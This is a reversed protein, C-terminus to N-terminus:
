RIRRPDRMALTSCLLGYAAGTVTLAALAFWFPFPALRAEVSVQNALRVIGLSCAYMLLAALSGGLAGQLVGEVLMPMAITARSAGVLQMIRIERRRAVITLRITNYILIGSTLLMIACLGTGVWRLTKLGDAVFQRADDMYRVGGEMIAPLRQIRRAVETAENMDSLSVRITDPLPNDIGEVLRPFKQRYEDWAQDKPVVEAKRVGPIKAIVAAVKVASDEPADLKLFARMEFRETLQNASQSAGQVIAILGGLLFLAMAVTTIAAFTMWRNRSLATLAEGLIFELRNLM